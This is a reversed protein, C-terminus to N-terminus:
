LQARVLEEWVVACWYHVGVWCRRDPCVRCDGGQAWLCEVGAPTGELRTARTTAAGAPAASSPCAAPEVSANAVLYSPSTNVPVKGPKEFRSLKSGASRDPEFSSTVM